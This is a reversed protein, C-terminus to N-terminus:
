FSFLMFFSIANDAAVTKADEAAIASIAIEPEAETVYSSL